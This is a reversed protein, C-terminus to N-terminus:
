CCCPVRPSGCGGGGGGCFLAVAVSVAFTAGPRGELLLTLFRVLDDMTTDVVAAAAAASVM